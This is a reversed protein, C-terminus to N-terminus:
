RNNKLLYKYLLQQLDYPCYIDERTWNIRKAEYININTLEITAVERTNLPTYIFYLKCKFIVLDKQILYISYVFGQDKGMKFDSRNLENIVLETDKSLILNFDKTLNNLSRTIIKEVEDRCEGYPRTVTFLNAPKNRSSYYGNMAVEHTNCIEDFSVNTRRPLECDYPNGEEIWVNIKCLDYVKGSGKDYIHEKVTLTIYLDTYYDRASHEFLVTYKNDIDNFGEKIWGVNLEEGPYAVKISNKARVNFGRDQLLLYVLDRLQHKAYKREILVMNDKVYKKM